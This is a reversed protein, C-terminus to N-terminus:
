RLPAFVCPTHRLGNRNRENAFVVTQEVFFLGAAQLPQPAKERSDADQVNNVPM